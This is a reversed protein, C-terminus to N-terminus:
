GHSERELQKEVGKVQNILDEGEFPKTLFGSVRIDSATKDFIDRDLATVVIFHIQPFVDQLSRMVEVGNRNPLALDMIVCDPQLAQIQQFAEEGDHTEGIIEYGAKNLHYRCIIRIFSADDVIFIKMLGTYL